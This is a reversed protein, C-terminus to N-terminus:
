IDSKVGNTVTAIVMDYTNSDEFNWEQSHADLFTGIAYEGHNLASKDIVVLQRTADGGENRLGKFYAYSNNVATLSLVDEQVALTTDKALQSPCIFSKGSKAGIYKGLETLTTPLPSFNEIRDDAYLLCALVIQRQNNKCQTRRGRERAQAIAPLLLGALIGIIAIVVLLEILTFGLKYVWKNRTSKM